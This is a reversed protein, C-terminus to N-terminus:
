FEENWATEFSFEFEVITIFTRSYPLNAGSNGYLKM